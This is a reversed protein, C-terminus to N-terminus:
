EPLTIRGTLSEIEFKAIVIEIEDIAEDFVRIPSFRRNIEATDFDGHESPPLDTLTGTVMISWSDLERFGDLQETGYVVYCATDTTEIFERKRSDDTEGLRFYLASGDYYHALPLGYAENAKALSLVGTQHERLLTEIESDGMGRTYAYDIHQM